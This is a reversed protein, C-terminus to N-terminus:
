KWSKKQNKKRLYEKDKNFEEKMDQTTKKIECIEKKITDKTESQLKGFDERLENLQKQTKEHKKSTTDQYQKLEDQVKQKVRDQLKEMVIEIIENIIKEKLTKKYVDNPKNTMILMTRNPDPVKYENEENRVLDKISNKTKQPMSNGPGRRIGM